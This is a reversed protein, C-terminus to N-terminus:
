LNICLIYTNTYSSWKNNSLSHCTRYFLVNGEGYHLRVTYKCYYSKYTRCDSSPTNKM